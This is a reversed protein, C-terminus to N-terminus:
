SGLAEVVVSTDTLLLGRDIKADSMRWVHVFPVKVDKGSKTRGESHGLVVVTGNEEIFEEPHSAWSDFSEPVTRGLAAMADDRSEFTGGGPIREDSTGEWRADPAFITSVAELDGRNFGDYGRKLADVNASM